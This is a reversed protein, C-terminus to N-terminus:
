DQRVGRAGFKPNSHVARSISATQISEAIQVEDRRSTTIPDPVKREEVTGSKAVPPSGDEWQDPNGEKLSPFRHDRFAAADRGTFEEGNSVPTRDTEIIFIGGGLRL